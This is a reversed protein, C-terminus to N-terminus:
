QSPRGTFPSAQRHCLRRLFLALDGCSSKLEALCGDTLLRWNEDLRALLYARTGYSLGDVRGIAARAGAFVDDHPSQCGSADVYDPATTAMWAFYDSLHSLRRPVYIRDVDVM